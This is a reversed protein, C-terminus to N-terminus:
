RWVYIHDARDLPVHYPKFGPITVVHQDIDQIFVRRAEELSGVQVWELTDARGCNSAIIGSKARDQVGFHLGAFDAPRWREPAAWVAYFNLEPFCGEKDKYFRKIERDIFSAARDGSLSPQSLTVCTPTRDWQIHDVAVFVNNRNWGGATGSSQDPAAVEERIPEPDPEVM